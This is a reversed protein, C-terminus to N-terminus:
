DKVHEVQKVKYITKKNFFGLYPNDVIKHELYNTVMQNFEEEDGTKLVIQAHGRVHGGARVFETRFRILDVEQALGSAFDPIQEPVADVLIGLIM